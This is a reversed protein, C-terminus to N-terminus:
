LRAELVVVYTRPPMMNGILEVYNYQFANNVNVTVSLPLSGLSFDAGVRFDTVFIAVREDGDPVIGVEVLEEDVRDVRSIYRFDVQANFWGLQGRAGTYLVHRPRYKLLDNETLDEPYVYTYGVDYTVLGDFLGLKLSTEVGQVRAKTVNRWQILLNPGSTILGAEILNDYDSSFAAVDFSGFSGIAQSLGVEFSYSREPKLDENPVVTLNSVGASIFAEAVSPVRFGRGFSARVITGPVPTYAVAAKPNLQGGAEIVGLSQYDFRAGVTLSLQDSFRMEDQGYAAFGGIARNGFIDAGIIAGNAELGTTLTHVRDLLFTALVEGRLDDAVSETRGIGRITEYGWDNHYWIAKATLLINDSLADNYLGSVFYRISKVNDTEQLVPPILASDLNRWYVFQGGYQYLMSFNLTLSNSASFDERVKMFFNYRRRYDNQRYGDDFQRSFFLAVGLNGVKRAHSISQGNSFRSSASWKWQDYSPRNYLGGYARVITEAIEPIPKTIVNIVGGLANSGYLASSAGKVVEIRDVQGIPIAEFNLEGTDGAIFPIGDVLMLVRSGAGRSYGSSGRINVQFGTMNVGSIYRLAEDIVLSNRQEIEKSDMISMSVPVEQLSQARKSATVVVQETQIPSQRLAVEVWTERTEEVQIEPFTERHYGVMSFVLTYIGPPIGTLRFEGGANTTTGRVTGELFVSVGVLPEGQTDGKATVRGAISGGSAFLESCAFLLLLVPFYRQRIAM